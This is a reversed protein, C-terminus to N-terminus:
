IQYKARREGWAEAGGQDFPYPNVLREETLIRIVSSCIESFTQATLSGPPRLRRTLHFLLIALGKRKWTM